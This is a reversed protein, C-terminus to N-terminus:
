WGGEFFALLAPAPDAATATNAAGIVIVLLAASASFVGFSGLVRRARGGSPGTGAFGRWSAASMGVLAVAVVAAVGALAVHYRAFDDIMVELAPPTPGGTSLHGALGRRVQDLTDALAGGPEGTTLMPLLSSFPAVAGQINAMVAATSGLALVTVLVGASALATSRGAGTGGARLFAKWLLVGLAALVTLLIAAIVAKAVHYRFWHDVIGALGPPLDRGGSGWYETFRERFAGALARQGAFGDGPGAGALTRPAVVFAAALAAALVALVAIVSGPAGASRPPVTPGPM